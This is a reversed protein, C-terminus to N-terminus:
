TYVDVTAVEQAIGCLNGGIKIYLYGNDGFDTGWSNRVIYYPIDGSIDYGVIQVAHNNSTECHYQIIGGQYNYWTKADVSVTVPGQTYLLELIRQENGVLSTQGSYCKHSKVHVGKTGPPQIKCPNSVDTLPYESETVLPVKNVIMWNLANCIDGGACGYDLGDCDIVQQVSLNPPPQQTKLSYISETTEVTSFAWCGGCKRQNKIGSIISYNLYARWDLKQPINLQQLKLLPTISSNTLLEPGRSILDSLYMEKFETANLDSFKTVGYFASPTKQETNLYHQVKKNEQFNLFRQRFEESGEKYTKGYKEIFSLFEEFINCQGCCIQLVLIVTLLWLDVKRFANM